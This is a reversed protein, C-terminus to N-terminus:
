YGRSLDIKNLLEDGTIYRTLNEKFLSFARELYHPSL